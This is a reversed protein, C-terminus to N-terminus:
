KSKRWKIFEWISMKKIEDVKNYLGTIEDVKAGLDKTLKINKDRENSFEYRLRRLEKNHEQDKKGLKENEESLAIITEDKTIFKANINNECGVYAEYFTYTKGELTERKFDRLENYKNLDLLVSDKEM